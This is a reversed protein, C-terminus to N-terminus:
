SWTRCQNLQRSRPRELKLEPALDLTLNPTRGGALGSEIGATASGGSVAATRERVGTDTGTTAGTGVNSHSAARAGHLALALNCPLALELMPKLMLELMPELMPELVLTLVSNLALAQSLM